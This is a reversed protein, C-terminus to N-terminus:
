RGRQKKEAEEVDYQYMLGFEDIQKPIDDWYLKVIKEGTSARKVRSRGRRKKSRKDDDEYEPKPLYYRRLFSRSDQYIFSGCDVYNDRTTRFAPLNNAQFYYSGQGFYAPIIDDEEFTSEFEELGERDITGFPATELGGEEFNPDVYVKVFQTDKFTALQLLMTPKAYDDDIPECYNNDVRVREMVLTRGTRSKLQIWQISDVPIFQDEGDQVTIFGDEDYEMYRDEDILIPAKIEEGNTLIITNVYSTDYEGESPPIFDQAHLSTIFFLTLISLAYKM